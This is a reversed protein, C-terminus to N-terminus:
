TGAHYHVEEGRLRSVLGSCAQVKKLAGAKFPHAQGGRAKLLSQLSLNRRVRMQAESGFFASLSLSSPTRLLFIAQYLKRLVLQAILELM